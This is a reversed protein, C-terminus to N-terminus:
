EEVDEASIDEGSLKALHLNMQKLEWLLRESLDNQEQLKANITAELGVYEGGIVYWVSSDSIITAYQYQTNLQLQIAGDITQTSNYGVVTVTSVGINKIIYYRGNYLATNPMTVTIHGRGTDCLIVTYPGASYNTSVQGHTYGSKVMIGSLSNIALIPRGSDLDRQYQHSPRGQKDPFYEPWMKSM